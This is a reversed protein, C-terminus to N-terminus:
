IMAIAEAFYIHDKYEVMFNVWGWVVFNWYLPEMYSVFLPDPILAFNALVGGWYKLLNGKLHTKCLNSDLFFFNIYAPIQLKWLVRMTIGLTSLVALSFKNYCIWMLEYSRMLFINCIYNYLAYDFYCCHCISGHGPQHVSQFFCLDAISHHLFINSLETAMLTSVSVGVGNWQLVISQAAPADFCTQAIIGKLNSFKKLCIFLWKLLWFQKGM